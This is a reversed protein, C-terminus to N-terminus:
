EAEVTGTRTTEVSGAVTGAAVSPEAPQGPWLNASPWLNPSPYILSM